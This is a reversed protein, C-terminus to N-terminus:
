GPPLFGLKVPAVTLGLLNKLKKMDVVISNSNINDYLTESTITQSLIMVLKHHMPTRSLVLCILIFHLIKVNLVHHYGPQALRQNQIHDM